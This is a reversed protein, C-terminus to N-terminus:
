VIRVHNWLWVVIRVLEIAGLVFAVVSVVAFAKILGSFDPLGRYDM